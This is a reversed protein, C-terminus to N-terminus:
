HISLLSLDYGMTDGRVSAWPPTSPAFIRNLRLNTLASHGISEFKIPALIPMHLSPNVIPTVMRYRHFLRNGARAVISEKMKRWESLYRNRVFVATNTPIATVRVPGDENPSADYHDHDADIIDNLPVHPFDLSFKRLWFWRSSLIDRLTHSVLSFLHLEKPNLLILIEVLLEVPLMLCVYEADRSWSMLPPLANVVGIQM